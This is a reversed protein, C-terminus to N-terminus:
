VHCGAIHDDVVGASQMLAYAVTPGVFRFGLDKLTRALAVSQPTTAPVQHRSTPRPALPDPAADFVVDVLRGGAAQLAVVARANAFTADVKARNRVIGADSLLRAREVEGWTAIVDPDFGDFAAVFNARKRLITIWALGSQFSELVLLEFLDTDDWDDRGRVGWETDHYHLYDPDDGPWWCRALGDNGRVLGDPLDPAGVAAQGPARDPAPETGEHPPTSTM